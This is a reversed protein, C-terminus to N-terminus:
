VMRDIEAIKERLRRASVRQVTKLEQAFISVKYEEVLWLFDEVAARKEATTAAKLESILRELAERAWRFQEAKRQDKAFDAAMRRARLLAAEMYRLLHTQRQRSYIQMFNDPVLAALDRRIRALVTATESRVPSQSELDYLEQRVEHYRCLVNEAQERLQAGHEYMQPAVRAAYDNFEAATRIDRCLGDTLVRELLKKEVAPAGGFHVAARVAAASLAVDRKLYQIERVLRRTLLARVGRRHAAVAKQRNEFLRLLVGDKGEQLGPYLFFNQGSRKEPVPIAEPLDPFTEPALDDREWERRLRAVLRSDRGGGYERRLVQRDRSACIEQGGDDIVAIRLQLHDPLLDPRWASAPIDVGLRERICESLGALFPREQPEMEAVIRAVTNSVPLLKKRLEKPLLKILAAIKEPLLGPVLWDLKEPPVDPVRSVPIRVTVGDRTDAPDFRYTCELPVGGAKAQVPFQALQDPPPEKQLVTERTLRLGADGRKKLFQKLTKYDFVPTDLAKQYVRFLDESSILFDRQRLRDEFQEVEGMVDRNHQLFPFHGDIDEEVLASRIFIATAEEPEVGGYPVGTEYDIVLGFLTTQRDAVVAGRKKQWRPNHYTHRCLEGGLANLWTREIAAANRAFLRSTEVYEAAVLWSRGKNFLTSGPFIMVEKSRAALYENGEKKMAIHSLFGSLVSKHLATYFLEPERRRDIRGRGGRDLRHERVVETLQGQVDRWERIRRCSFYNDRCFRKLQSSTLDCTAEWINLLSIFDSSQDFFAAQATQAEAIRDPPVQKIDPISLAAVLIVAEPLCGSRGAALLVASLRPDVPIKAMMRGRRTLRQRGAAAPEGPEAPATAGLEYLLEHGDQISKSPPPDIFPFDAVRGLGLHRMRLIVEALNARLVEPPTFLPRAAFDTEPYLRICVGQAVRGCRGKRQEASSQSISRVALSTARTRPNYHSIRALGTDIVYKIHPLTLSTEAINTAVIIKRRSSPAFIRSQQDGPLQAYLPLVRTGPHKRGAILQCTERIDRVTPMFVLIDGAANRRCIDDVAAVAQEVYGTEGAAETQTEEPTRYQVEVPYMRGSVEIVPAQHFAQSFKETDITASTIVVKLDSRKKLLTKVIGLIFDINLSREHAEDVVLADYENLYRDRQAEALLIGDTMIKILTDEGTQDGFRIKYGVRRDADGGLEEAIRKAVSIAAIRRPQTCGIRGDGGLGAALCFKPIQTTKGSGTAGSVIVM